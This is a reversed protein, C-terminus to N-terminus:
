RSVLEHPCLSRLIAVLSCAYDNRDELQLHTEQDFQDNQSKLLHKLSDSEWVHASHRFGTQTWAPIDIKTTSLHCAYRSARSLEQIDKNVLYTAIIWPSTPFHHKSTLYCCKLYIEEYWCHKPMECWFSLFLNREWSAQFYPEKSLSWLWKLHPEKALEALARGM